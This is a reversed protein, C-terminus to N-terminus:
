AEELIAYLEKLHTIEYTVPLQKQNPIHKPNMWCTDIGANIGGQIDSSLSDGILLTQTKDFDPIHSFCYTFYEKMPKRYGVEESVFVQQFHQDLGSDKLRAYQTATVGNTVIYLAYHKKLEQVLELAHPMLAHGKGLEAQYIHEFRVGDEQIQFEEFLKGFRTFIVEERTKKGEEYANWLAKNIQMYREEIAKTFPIHHLAFTHHLADTETKDFDLLTNDADFLLIKYKSM